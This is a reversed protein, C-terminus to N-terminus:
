GRLGRILAVADNGTVAVARLAELVEVYARVEDPDTIHQEGALNEAIVLDDDLLRFGSLPPAVMAARLPVIGVEVGRLGAVSALKELQGARVDPGGPMSLLAVEGIVLM